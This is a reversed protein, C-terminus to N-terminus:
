CINLKCPCQVVSKSFKWMLKRKKKSKEDKDIFDNKKDFYSNIIGM